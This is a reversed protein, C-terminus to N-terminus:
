PVFDHHHAGIVASWQVFIQVDDDHGNAIENDSQVYNMTGGMRDFSKAPMTLGPIMVVPRKLTPPAMLPGYAVRQPGQLQEIPGNPKLKNFVRDSMWDKSANFPDIKPGPGQVFPTLNVACEQATSCKISLFTTAGACPERWPPRPFM